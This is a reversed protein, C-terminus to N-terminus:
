NLMGTFVEEQRMLVTSQDTGARRRHDEVWDFDSKLRAYQQDIAVVAEDSNVLGGFHYEGRVPNAEICECRTKAMSKNLRAVTQERRQNLDALLTDIAKEAAGLITHRQVLAARVAQLWSWHEAAIRAREALVVEVDRDAWLKFDAMRTRDAAIQSFQEALVVLKNNHEGVLRALEDGHAVVEQKLLELDLRSLLKEDRVNQEIWNM